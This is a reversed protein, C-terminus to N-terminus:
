RGPVSPPSRLIPRFCGPQDLKRAETLAGARVGDGFRAQDGPPARQGDDPPLARDGPIALAATRARDARVAAAGVGEVRAAVDDALLGRRRASQVREEPRLRAPDIEAREAAM